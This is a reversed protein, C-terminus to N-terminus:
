DNAKQKQKIIIMIFWTIVLVQFIAGVVYLLSTNNVNSIYFVLQLALVTGWVIGSVAICRFINGYWMVAFVTLVIFTSPIAFIFSLWVPYNETAPIIKLITFVLVAVFWVLISSLLTVFLHNTKKNTIPKVVNTKELCLDNIIAPTDFIIVDFATSLNRILKSVMSRSIYDAQEPLVPAPLVFLNANVHEIFLNLNPTFDKNNLLLDYVTFNPKINTYLGVDGFQLSFDVLCTKLGFEAFSAALNTAITTKGVGGSAGIVSVVSIDKYAQEEVHVYSESNYTDVLAASSAVTGRIANADNSKVTANVGLRNLHKAELKIGNNVVNLACSAFKGKLVRIKEYCDNSTSYDFLYIINNDEINLRVILDSFGNYSVVDYQEDNAINKWAKEKNFLIKDVYIKYM